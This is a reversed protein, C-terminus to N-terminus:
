GASEPWDRFPARRPAYLVFRLEISDMILLPNAILINVLPMAAIPNIIIKVGADGASADGFV